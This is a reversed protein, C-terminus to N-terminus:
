LSSSREKRPWTSILDGQGHVIREGVALNRLDLLSERPFVDVQFGLDAAFKMKFLDDAVTLCQTVNLSISVTAGASEVTKIQPSVPVPFSSIAHARCLRLERFDLAKTM